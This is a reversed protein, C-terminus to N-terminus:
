QRRGDLSEEARRAVAAVISAIDVVGRISAGRQLVARIYEGAVGPEIPKLDADAIRVFAEIEEILLGIGSDKGCVLMWRLERRSGARMDLSPQGLMAGLDYVALLRGRLGTLGLLGPVSGPVKVIKRCAEVGSLDEVRIAFRGEGARIALVSRREEEFSRVPAAFTADFARRVDTLRLLIPDLAM